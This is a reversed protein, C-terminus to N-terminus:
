RLRRYSGISSKEVWHCQNLEAGEDEYVDTNTRENNPKMLFCLRRNLRNDRKWEKWGRDSKRVRMREKKVRNLSKKTEFIRKRVFLKMLKRSKETEILKRAKETEVAKDNDKERKRWPPRRRSNKGSFFGRIKIMYKEERKRFVSNM